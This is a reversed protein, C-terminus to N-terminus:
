VGSGYPPLAEITEAEVLRPFCNVGGIGAPSSEVFVTAAHNMDDYKKGNDSRYIAADIGYSGQAMNLTVEFTCRHCEGANLSFPCLGLRETTTSFLLYMKEDLLSLVVGLNDV